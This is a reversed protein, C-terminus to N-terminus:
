CPLQLMLSTGRGPESDLSLRGSSAEVANNLLHLGVHGEGRRRTRDAASFGRGNDEVELTVM